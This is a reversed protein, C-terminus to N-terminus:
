RTVEGRQKTEHEREEGEEGRVDLMSRKRMEVEREREREREREKETERAHHDKRKNHREFDKQTKQEESGRELREGKRRKNQEKM